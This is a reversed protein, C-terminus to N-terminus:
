EVLGSPWCSRCTKLKDVEIPMILKHLLLSLMYWSCPKVLRFVMWASPLHKMDQAMVTSYCHIMKWLWSFWDSSLRSWLSVYRDFSSCVAIVSLVFAFGQTARCVVPIIIRFLTSQILQLANAKAKLVLCCHLTFM